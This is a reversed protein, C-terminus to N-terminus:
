VKGTQRLAVALNRRAEYMQPRMKLAARYRGALIVQDLSAPRLFLDDSKWVAALTSSYWKIADAWMGADAYSM